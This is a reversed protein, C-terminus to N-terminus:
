ALLELMRRREQARLSGKRVKGTGTVPLSDVVEIRSPVKFRALREECWARVEAAVETPDTEPAVVYAVVAEGTDQDAVGIVAAERVGAVERIVDEVETPYVNFGSVIVLEKVRDVLFLEGRPDLLGVDGTSWWGEADPGDAGDPWYGSFLNAGRIRIEGPDGPEPVQGSEEVLRIEIGPLARGVSGPTPDDDGDLTSTVVPAAETLGYGQHVPLGTSATFRAVADPDLPASGSLIVRVPGLREALSDDDRWHRFVPPALPLVSCAEDDVVDLITEPDHDRVLVLKARHRLVSGLVANLGYVHFLPLVGLVVDDGHMMAPRVSGVQDINALLARHSLMAARPHGSTGSTYLLVALREPDRVRPVEVTTEVGRLAAYSWEGPAADGGVVVLRPHAARVLLDEPLHEAVEETAGTGAHAAELAAIAARVTGLASADAVVLRAGSDALIRVMEGVTSRPNVPVAVGHVRLVALYTTVFEITNELVMVVRYGAVVGVSSLGHALRAVEAELEVWTVSRGDAEVLALKDPTESAAVVVLDSLDGPREDGGDADAGPREQTTGEDM